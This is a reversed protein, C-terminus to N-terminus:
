IDIKYIGGVEIESICNKERSQISRYKEQKTKSLWRYCTGYFYTGELIVMAEKETKTVGSLFVDNGFGDCEGFVLYIEM